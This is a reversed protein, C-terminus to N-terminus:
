QLETKYQVEGFNDSLVNDASMLFLKDYDTPLVYVFPQTETEGPILILRQRIGHIMGVLAVQYGVHPPQDPSAAVSSPTLKWTGKVYQVTVKQGKKGGGIFTGEEDTASLTVNSSPSTETTLPGGKVRAIEQEVARADELRRERTLKQRLSNLRRLYDTRLPTLVRETNRAYDTQMAALEAPAAPTDQQSFGSLLGAMFTAIGLAVASFSTRTPLHAFQRIADPTMSTSNTALGFM